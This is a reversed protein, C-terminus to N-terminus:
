SRQRLRGNVQTLRPPNPPARRSLNGACRGVAAISAQESRLDVALQSHLDSEIPESVAYSPPSVGPETKWSGSRDDLSTASGFGFAVCTLTLLLGLAIIQAAIGRM